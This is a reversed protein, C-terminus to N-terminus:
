VHGFLCMNSALMFLDNFYSIYMIVYIVSECGVRRVALRVLMVQIWLCLRSVRKCLEVRVDCGSLLWSLGTNM